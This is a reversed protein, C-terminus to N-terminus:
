AVKLRILDRQREQKLTETDKEKAAIDNDIKMGWELAEERLWGQVKLAHM